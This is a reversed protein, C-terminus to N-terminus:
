KLEGKQGIQDWLAAADNGFSRRLDEEQLGHAELVGHVETNVALWEAFSDRLDERAMKEEGVVEKLSELMAQPDEERM